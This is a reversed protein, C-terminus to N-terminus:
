LTKHKTEASIGFIEKGRNIIQMVSFGMVSTFDCELNHTDAIVVTSLLYISTNILSIEHVCAWVEFLFFNQM